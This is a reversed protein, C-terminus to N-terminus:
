RPRTSWCTSRGSERPARAAAADTLDAAFCDAEGGRAVIERQLERAGTDSSNYHIALRMGRGALAEAIARGLRQGAGTVLAVRGALEM